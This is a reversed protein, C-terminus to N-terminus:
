RRAPARKVPLLEAGLAAFEGPTTLVSLELRLALHRERRARQLDEFPEVAAELEAARAGQRAAVQELQAVAAGQRSGAEQDAQRAAAVLAQLKALRAQDRVQRDIAPELRAPDGLQPSAMAAGLHLTLSGPWEEATLLRALQDRIALARRRHDTRGTDAATLAARFQDSTADHRRDLDDIRARIIEAQASAQDVVEQLRLLVEDAQAARNTDHIAARLGARAEDNATLVRAETTPATSPGHACGAVWLAGALLFSSRLSM